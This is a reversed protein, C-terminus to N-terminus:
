QRGGVPAALGRARRAGEGTGEALAVAAINQVFKEESLFPERRLDLREELLAAAEAFLAQRAEFQLESRRLCLQLLTEREELGLRARARARLAADEQLTNYKEGPPLIAEPAVRRRVRVVLTGGAWDGLRKHQPHLLAALGGVGYLGVSVFDVGPVVFLFPAMDLVRLLNRIISQFLDMNMGRDDIVRLDFLRKGPTQGNNRRDWYVFYGFYVAFSGLLAAALMPGGALLLLLGGTFICGFLGIVFVAGWIGLLLGLILLHDVVVAAMRSGLGALEYTFEVSEPTLVRHENRM